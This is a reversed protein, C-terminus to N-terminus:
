VKNKENIDRVPIIFCTADYTTWKERNNHDDIDWFGYFELDMREDYTPMRWDRHGNHELTACYLWAEDCPIEHLSRDAYEIM